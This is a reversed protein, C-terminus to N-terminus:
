HVLDRFVSLNNNNLTAPMFINCHYGGIFKLTYKFGCM